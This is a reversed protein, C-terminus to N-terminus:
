ARTKGKLKPTPRVDEDDYLSVRSLLAELKAARAEAQEARKTLLLEAEEKKAKNAARTAKAKAGRDNGQVELTDRKPHPNFFEDAHAPCSIHGTKSSTPAMCCTNLPIVQGHVTKFGYSGCTLRVGKRALPHRLMEALEAQNTPRVLGHLILPNVSTSARSATSPTVSPQRAMDAARYAASSAQSPGRATRPHSEVFRSALRQIDARTPPRAYDEEEEEDEEAHLPEDEMAEQFDEEDATADSDDYEVVPVAARKVPAQRQQRKLAEAQEQRRLAEVFAEAEASPMASLTAFLEQQEEDAHQHCNGGVKVRGHAVQETRSCQTGDQKFGQCQNKKFSTSM